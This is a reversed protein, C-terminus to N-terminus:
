KGNRLQTDYIQRCEAKATALMNASEVAVERPVFFIEQKGPLAKRNNIRVTDQMLKVYDNTAREAASQCYELNGFLLLKFNEKELVRKKAEARAQIIGEHIHESGWLELQNMFDMRLWAWGMIFILVLASVKKAMDVRLEYPTRTSREQKIHKNAPDLQNFMSDGTADPSKANEIAQKIREM